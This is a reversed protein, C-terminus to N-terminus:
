VCIGKRCLSTIEGSLWKSKRFIKYYMFTFNREECEHGYMYKSNANEIQPCNKPLKSNETESWRLGASPLFYLVSFIIDSLHKKSWM